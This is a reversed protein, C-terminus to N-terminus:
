TQEDPEKFILDQCKQCLGSITYEKRSLEDRFENAPGGCGIPPPVCHNGKISERRDFGFLKTLDKEMGEDKDSPKM